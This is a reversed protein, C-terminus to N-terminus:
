AIVRVGRTGATAPVHWADAIQAAAKRKLGYSDSAGDYGLLIAAMDVADAPTAYANNVNLAKAFEALVRVTHLSKPINGM